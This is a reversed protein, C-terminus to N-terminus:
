FINAIKISPLYNTVQSEADIKAEEIQSVEMQHHKGIQALEMDRQSIERELAVRDVIWSARENEAKSFM